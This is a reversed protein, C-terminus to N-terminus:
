GDAAVSQRRARYFFFKLFFVFSQRRSVDFRRVLLCLCHDPPFPASVRVLSFESFATLFQRERFEQKILNAEKTAIDEKLQEVQQTTIQLKRKLDQVEEQAEILNKSYLNREARVVELLSQQQRYRMEIEELRKKYDSIEM